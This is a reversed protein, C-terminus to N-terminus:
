PHGPAWAPWDAPDLRRLDPLTDFHRDASIILGLRHSAMVAAHLSDRAQLDSHRQHLELALLLDDKTIPLVEPVIRLFLRAAEVAERRRGLATYRHLVEQLVECDTVATLRGEAVATLIALSPAKLPHNAGAAYMPINADIFYPGENL